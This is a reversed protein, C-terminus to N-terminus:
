ELIVAKKKKKKTRKPVAVIRGELPEPVQVAAELVTETNAAPNDLNQNLRDAVSESAMKAAAKKKRKKEEKAAKKAEKEALERRMLEIDVEYGNFSSVSAQMEPTSALDLNLNDLNMSDVIFKSKKKKRKKTANDDETSEKTAPEEGLTEEALIMVKEKKLKKSKKSKPAASSSVIELESTPLPSAEVGNEFVIKKHKSKSAKQSGLSIYYPDDKLRELRVRTATLNAEAPASTVEEEEDVPEDDSSPESVALCYEPPSFLESQLDLEEPIPIRKQATNSVPNLEYSKFFSPLVQILLLPLAVSEREGTGEQTPPSDIPASTEDIQSSIDSEESSSQDSENESEDELDDTELNENTEVDKKLQMEYYKEEELQLKQIELTDGKNFADMCLKLFEIWYLAREQVEFRPHTAWFELTQILKHLFFGLEDAKQPPIKGEYAYRDRYELVISNFLKVISPIVSVVISHPANVLKASVSVDRSNKAWYPNVLANLIQIKEGLSNGTGDESEDELDDIYEGAIWYIDRLILPCHDLVKPDKVLEAVVKELLFPRISPVKAAVSTFEAGLILSIESLLTQSLRFSADHAKTLVTQGATPLLTLNVLEKLATIYWKFNPVNEYNNSSSIEIVKATIELKLSEPIRSGDEGPVLQLLLVKVVNAMNDENVLYHCVELAKRKIILDKDTLCDMVVDSIGKIKYMFEPFIKLVNILALLGVFKLNSDNTVFFNMLRNICEKATEKDRSSDASLMNGNIICNICEYVLSTADTKTMLERISPLIKKKMRPEIKLLTQFLKLIRIILWNNTTDSLIAFFKPLYSLFIQPNNKSIECIVTLTASVVAIDPDDLKEIVRPLSQRLSEPYQIFIKFLALVAKKRIYPKSHTLKLLVDDVIDQALHPTVITAIGSLALGVEIYNHSNLDKKFQNTALILLNQESKFSQMTALYGIRKQQFKASSMVELIQFNCWSMDFGYMELYALKLIATAKLELDTTALEEKCEQLARELFELLSEPSKKSHARIGEILDSLSKEFRIGFPNLRALVEQSQFQFSSM